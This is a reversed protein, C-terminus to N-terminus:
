TCAHIAPLHAHAAPQLPESTPRGSALAGLAPEDVALVSVYRRGKGSLRIRAEGACVLQAAALLGEDLLASHCDRLVFVGAKVPCLSTAIAADSAEAAAQISIPQAIPQCSATCPVMLLAPEPAPAPAPVPDPVPDPTPAPDPEASARAVDWPYEANERPLSTTPRPSASSLRVAATPSFEQLLAFVDPTLSGHDHAIVRTREPTVPPISERTRLLMDQLDDSVAHAPSATHM